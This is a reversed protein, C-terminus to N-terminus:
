TLSSVGIIPLVIISLWKNQKQSGFTPIVAVWLVHKIQEDIKTMTINLYLISIWNQSWNLLNEFISPLNNNVDDSHSVNKVRLTFSFEGSSFGWVMISKRSIKVFTRRGPRSCYITLSLTIKTGNCNTQRKKKYFNKKETHLQKKHNYIFVKIKYKVILLIPIYLTKINRM